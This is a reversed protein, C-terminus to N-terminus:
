RLHMGGVRGSLQAVSAASSPVGWIVLRGDLGSTSVSEVTGSGDASTTFSRVSTITNQHVTYLETSASASQAGGLGGPSQPGSSGRSDANKFRAFAENNLRGPRGM